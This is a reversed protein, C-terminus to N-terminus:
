ALAGVATDPLTSIRTMLNFLTGIFKTRRDMMLQMRLSAAETREDIEALHEESVPPVLRLHAREPPAPKLLSRTEIFEALRAHLTERDEASARVEDMADRLEQEMIKNAANVVLFVVADAEPGE